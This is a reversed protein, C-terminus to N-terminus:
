RRRIPHSGKHYLHFDEKKNLDFDVPEPDDADDAPDGKAGSSNRAAKPTSKSDKKVSAPQDAPAPDESVEKEDTLEDTKQDDAPSVAEPATEKDANASGDEQSITEQNDAGYTATMFSYSGSYPTFLMSFAVFLSLIIVLSHKKIM